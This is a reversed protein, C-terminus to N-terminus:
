KLINVATGTEVRRYRRLHPTEYGRCKRTTRSADAVRDEPGEAQRQFRGKAKGYSRKLWRYKYLYPFLFYDASLMMTIIM